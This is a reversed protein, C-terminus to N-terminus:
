IRTRIDFKTVLDLVKNLSISNYLINYLIITAFLSASAQLSEQSVTDADYFVPIVTIQM